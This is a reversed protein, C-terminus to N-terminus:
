KHGVICKLLFQELPTKTGNRYQTLAVHYPPSSDLPWDVPWYGFRGLLVWVLLRAMHGNGNAYPHITLFNVLFASLIGVFQALLVAKQQASPSPQQNFKEEFKTLADSLGNEFGAMFLPVMSATVGVKPDMGVKVNYNVLCPFKSGRYNGALYSCKEPMMGYFM